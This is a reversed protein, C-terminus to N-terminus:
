PPARTRRCRRSRRTRRRWSRAPAARAASRGARPAGAGRSRSRRSPRDAGVLDLEARDDVDLVLLGAVRLFELDDARGLGVRELVLERVLRRDAFRQDAVLAVVDDGDLDRAPRLLFEFDGLDLGRLAPTSLEDLSAAAILSSGVSCAALEGVNEGVPPLLELPQALGPDLRERVLEGSRSSIASTRAACSPSPAPSRSRTAGGPRRASRRGAAAVALRSGRGRRRCRGSGAARGRPRARRRLRRAREDVEVEAVDDADLPRRQRGPAALERQAISRQRQEGLAQPRRGVLEVAELVDLGAVAVALEVQDGVLLAAAEERGRAPRDALHAAPEVLAAEDLDLRRDQLREVAAGQGPGEGGVVVREVAVEVQPDRGLEVELPQTTPPM